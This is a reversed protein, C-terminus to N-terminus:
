CCEVDANWNVLCSLVDVNSFVTLGLQIAGAIGIFKLAPLRSALLNFNM